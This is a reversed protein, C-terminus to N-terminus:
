RDMKDAWFGEDCQVRRDDGTNWGRLRRRSLLPEDLAGDIPM